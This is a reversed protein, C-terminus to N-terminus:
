DTVGMLSDLYTRLDNCIINRWSYKTSSIKIMRSDYTGRNKYIEQLGRYVADANDQILVGNSGTIVLQNEKTATALVAMGSLLYEFVKTAPQCDFHGKIPIYAVGVNNKELFPTLEDHPIRGYFRVLDKCGMRQITNHLKKEQEHSGFGVIDYSLDLRDKMDDYFRAFGEITEDIRRYDLTGVYLLRMAGFNKDQLNLEDAGVPLIYSKNSRIGLDQRLSDSQVAVHSFLLSECYLIGDYIYKMVKNDRVYGTVIELIIRQSRYVLPFVSCLPFYVVLVLDFKSSRIEGSVKLIYRTLRRLWNGSRSVYIVRTNEEPLKQWGHDWCVFSIDYHGQLLRSYKYTDVHNGFQSRDVILLRKKM